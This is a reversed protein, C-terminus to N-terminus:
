NLPIGSIENTVSSLIVKEKEIVVEHDLLLKM